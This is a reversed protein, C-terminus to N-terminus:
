GSAGQLSELRQHMRLELDQLCTREQELLIRETAILLVTESGAGIIGTACANFSHHDRVPLIEAPPTFVIRHVRDVLLALPHGSAHLIVIPSYMARVAATGGFLWSLEVVPISEGGVELMGALLPPVM